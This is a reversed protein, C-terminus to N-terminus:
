AAEGRGLRHRRALVDRVWGEVDAGVVPVDLVAGPRYMADGLMVLRSVDRGPAMSALAAHWQASSLTVSRPDRSRAVRRLLQHASAAFAAADGDAAHRTRAADLDALVAEVYRRQRTRHRWWLIAGVIAVAFLALLVWWGFALPWWSVQPVHVNRLEPSKPPM